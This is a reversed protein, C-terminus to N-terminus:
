NGTVPQVLAKRLVLGVGFKRRYESQAEAYEDVIEVKETGFFIDRHYRITGIYVAKDEPRVAVAFTGQLPAFGSGPHPDGRGLTVTM